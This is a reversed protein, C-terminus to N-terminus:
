CLINKKVKYKNKNFIFRLKKEAEIADNHNSITKINSYFISAIRLMENYYVEYVKLLDNEKNISNKFVFCELQEVTDFSELLRTNWKKTIANSNNQRYYFNENSFVVKNSHFFLLRTTYEDSNINFDYLFGNNFKLLEKRWLVFGSIEWNISLSYADKGSIIKHYEGKLGFIGKIDKNNPHYFVLNPVIADAVNKKALSYNERLLDPSFLDDQSTYMFYDGLAHKLGFNVAKAATGENNKTYIKVRSDKVAFNNLIEVSNDTSGDDICIIEFDRFTQALLSNLTEELFYSGNYVPMLVSIVPDVSNNHVM